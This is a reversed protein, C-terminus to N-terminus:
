PTIVLTGKESRNSFNNNRSCMYHYTGAKFQLVMGPYSAPANNLLNNMQAKTKLANPCNEICQYYGSSGMQVAIDMPKSNLDAPTGYKAWHVKKVNNFIASSDEMLAPYNHNRDLIAVVNGRDTGGTGEGDDGTQGDGGPANNNHTNSGTWQFHVAENSKITLNTPFFDYEVAPYVQVINGRKGRINVNQINLGDDIDASAIKSGAKRKRPELYFTHTRDEFTRGFQATNIALRMPINDAGIDVAPNQQIPSIVIPNFNRNMRSDTFYPDYDDTTINYRLRAVCRQKAQSPFYPLKWDLRMAELNDANGLHNDRSFGSAACYPKELAVLCVKPYSYIPRAWIYTPKNNGNAKKCADETTFEPAKELFNHFELWEGNAAECDIKNNHQSYHKYQNTNPWKEVCEFKSKVNFSEAQFYECMSANEALIGIDKWDTPHWYPYYDREEPCEYGNQNGNPNQRTNKSQDGVKQDATFLGKNRKRQTCKDYWEFPEQLGRDAKLNNAKRANFQSKNENNRPAQYQPRNTSTGDRIANINKDVIAGAEDAKQCMYQVVLHCNMKNPDNDENGGCGHQATWEWPLYTVGSESKLSAASSQFYTMRYQKTQDANAARDTLDGVNYGGRNNNQSDFMRNGTKRNATKENLRNNSGRPMHLYIDAYVINVVFMVFILLTVM